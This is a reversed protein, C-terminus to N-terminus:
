LVKCIFTAALLAVIFSQMPYSSHGFICTLGVAVILIGGVDVFFSRIREKIWEWDM